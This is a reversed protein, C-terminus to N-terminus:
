RSFSYSVSVIINYCDIFQLVANTPTHQAQFLLAFTKDLFNFRNTYILQKAVEKIYDFTWPQTVMQDVADTIVVPTHTLAYQTFFEEYSLDLGSRREVQPIYVISM